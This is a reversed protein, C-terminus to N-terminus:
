RMNRLQAMIARTDPRVGRWITFAEAAQEVLMGVGDLIHQCGEQEAYRTFPTSTGYMMEYALSAPRCLGSPLPLAQESLGTSTANIVLDFAQGEAADFGGAQLTIGLASAMSHAKEIMKEAKEATRNVVCLSRPHEHLLPFLVGEAAGGAGVILVDKGRIPTQHNRVIDNVLGAGDTNDGVIAGAEFSLTNVAGALTARETRQTCLAFAEFKFPVTVNVGRYGVQILHEVTARFGDLPALVRKYTLAQGTQQAFAEHILPSKSHAIPHGIVAYKDMSLM